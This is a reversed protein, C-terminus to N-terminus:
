YWPPTQVCLTLMTPHLRHGPNIRPVESELMLSPGLDLCQFMLHLRTWPMASHLLPSVLTLRRSVKLHGQSRPMAGICLCIYRHQVKRWQFKRIHLLVWYFTLVIVFTSFVLRWPLHLSLLLALNTHCVASQLYSIFRLVLLPHLLVTIWCGTNLRKVQLGCIHQIFTLTQRSIDSYYSIYVCVCVCVRKVARQGPSAPHAPVLFTCDIQIKSLCSVTPPLPM